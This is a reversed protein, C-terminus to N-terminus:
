IQSAIDKCKHPSIKPLEDDTKKEKAFLLIIFSGCVLLIGGCSAANVVKQRALYDSLISLPITLLTGVSVFFPNTFAISLLCFLTYFAGSIGILLYVLIENVDCGIEEFGLAYAIYVFIWMTIINLIGMISIVHMTIFISIGTETKYNSVSDIERQVVDVYFTDSWKKYLVTYISFLFTSILVFLIGRLSNRKSHISFGDNETYAL